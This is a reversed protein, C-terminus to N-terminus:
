VFKENVEGAVGMGDKSAANTTKPRGLFCDYGRLVAIRRRSGMSIRRSLVNSLLDMPIGHVPM